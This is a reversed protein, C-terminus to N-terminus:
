LGQKQLCNSKCVFANLLMKSGNTFEVNPSVCSRPIKGVCSCISSGERFNYFLNLEASWIGRATNSAPSCFFKPQSM